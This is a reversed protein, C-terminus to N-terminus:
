PAPQNRLWDALAYILGCIAGIIAAMQAPTLNFRRRHHHHGEPM